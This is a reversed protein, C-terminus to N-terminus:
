CMAWFAQLLDERSKTGTKKFLHHTHTKVTGISVQLERSIQYNDMGEIVYAMIEQERPTLGHKKAFYPLIDRALAQKRSTEPLITEERKLQLVRVSQYLTFCVICFVLLSECTNHRYLYALVMSDRITQPNIFLMFVTDELFILITLVVFALLVPAKSQYRVRLLESTTKFYSLVCYLVDWLLFLQRAGYILWKKFSLDHIPALLATLSVCFFITLPIFRMSRRNDDFFELFALWLTQCLIGGTVIRLAPHEMKSYDGTQFPINQTLFENFFIVSQDVAYCLVFLSLYLLIRRRTILLASFGMFATGACVGICLIAYVYIATVM